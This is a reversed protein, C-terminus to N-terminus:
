VRLDPRTREQKESRKEKKNSQELIDRATEAEGAEAFTVAMMWKDWKNLCAKDNSM